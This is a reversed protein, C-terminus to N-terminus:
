RRGKECNLTTEGDPSINTIFDDIETAEQIEIKKIVIQTVDVRPPRKTMM